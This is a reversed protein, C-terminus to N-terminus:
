ETIEDALRAYGAIVDRGHGGALISWDEMGHKGFGESGTKRFRASWGKIYGVRGVANPTSGIADAVETVTVDWGLPSAYAWIRYALAMAKPSM